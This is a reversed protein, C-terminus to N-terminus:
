TGVYWRWLLPLLGVGVVVVGHAPCFLVEFIFSLM